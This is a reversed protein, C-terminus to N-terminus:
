ELSSSCGGAFLRWFEDGKKFFDVLSEIKSPRITM